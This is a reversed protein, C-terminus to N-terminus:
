NRIVLNIGLCFCWGNRRGDGVIVWVIERVAVGLGVAVVVGTVVGEASLVGVEAELLGVGVIILFTVVTILFGVAVIVGSGVTM